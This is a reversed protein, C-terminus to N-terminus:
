SRRGPFPTPSNQYFPFPHVFSSFLYLWHFFPFFLFPLLHPLLHVIPFLPAGAGCPAFKLMDCVQLYFEYCDPSNFQSLARLHVTKLAMRLEADILRWCFACIYMHICLASSVGSCWLSFPLKECFVERKTTLSKWCYNVLKRQMLRWM